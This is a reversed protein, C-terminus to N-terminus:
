RDDDRDGALYEDILTRIIETMPRGEIVSRLRLRRHTESEISVTIVTRHDDAM